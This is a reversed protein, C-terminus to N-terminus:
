PTKSHAPSNTEGWQKDTGTHGHHRKSGIGGGLIVRPFPKVPNHELKVVGEVGIGQLRNGLAVLEDSRLKQLIADVIHVAVDTVHAVQGVVHQLYFGM